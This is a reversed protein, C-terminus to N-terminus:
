VSFITTYLFSVFAIDLFPFHSVSFFSDRDHSTKENFYFLVFCLLITKIVSLLSECALCSYGILLHVLNWSVDAAGSVNWSKTTKPHHTVNAMHKPFTIITQEYTISESEMHNFGLRSNVTYKNQRIKDIDSAIM